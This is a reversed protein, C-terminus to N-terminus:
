DQCPYLGSGARQRVGAERRRIAGQLDFLQAANELGMAVSEQISVDITEGVGTAEARYVAM